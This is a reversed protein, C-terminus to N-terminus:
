RKINRNELSKISRRWEILEGWPKHLVYSMFCYIAVSRLFGIQFLSLFCGWIDM